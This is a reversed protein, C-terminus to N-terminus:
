QLPITNYIAFRKCIKLMVMKIPVDADIASELDAVAAGGSNPLILEFDHDLALASLDILVLPFGNLMCAVCM